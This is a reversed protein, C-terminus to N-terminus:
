LLAMTPVTSAEPADLYPGGQGKCVRTVHIHTHIHAHRTRSRQKAATSYQINHSHCTHPIALHMLHASYVLPLPLPSLRPRFAARIPHGLGAIPGPGPGPSFRRCWPALMSCLGVHGVSTM